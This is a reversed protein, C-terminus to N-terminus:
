GHGEGDAAALLAHARELDAPTDVGFGCCAVADPVAIRAGAALARLQELREITEIAAPRWAVFRQLFNVRYAYLGVHRRYSVGATWDDDRPFPIPARSFYLASDDDARVVKVVNPDEWDARTRLPECVTAMDLVNSSKLVHAVQAIVAPSINPEDGQLNVVIQEPREARATAAAAIRDTGSPLTPDTLCALAGCEEALRAIRTDDTAVVVESAGSAHARELVWALMPRGALPLLVKGPLRSSAYRAPVYVKFSM